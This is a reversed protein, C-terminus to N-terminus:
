LCFRLMHQGRPHGWEGIAEIDWPLDRVCWEFDQTRYHYSDQADYTTISDAPSAANNHTLPKTIDHDAPCNWYTAFFVGGQQMVPALLALCRRIHNLPLHSFVSQAIAVDIKRPLVFSFDFSDNAVLQNRPQKQRQRDNLEKEYGAAILEESIDQGYYNGPQLYDIAKVGLRLSGCGIDLLRQSPQLGNALLFDMQLSGLEDWMGGVANRHNNNSIAREIWEKNYYPNHM